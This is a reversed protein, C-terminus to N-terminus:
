TANVLKSFAENKDKTQEGDISLRHIQKVMQSTIREMYAVFLSNCKGLIAGTKRVKVFASVWEELLGEEFYEDCKWCSSHYSILCEILQFVFSVNNFVQCVNKEFPDTFCLREYLLDLQASAMILTRQGMFCITGLKTLVKFIWSCPNAEVDVLDFNSQYTLIMEILQLALDAVIGEIVMKDHRSDRLIKILIGQFFDIAQHTYGTLYGNNATETSRKRVIEELFKCAIFLQNDHHLDSTGPLWENKQLDNAYNWRNVNRLFQRFLLQDIENERVDSLSAEFGIGATEFFNCKCSGPLPLIASVTSDCQKQQFMKRLLDIEKKRSKAKKKWHQIAAVQSSRVKVIALALALRYDNSIKSSHSSM